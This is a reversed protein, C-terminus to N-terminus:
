GGNAQGDGEPDDQMQSFSVVKNRGQRKAEANAMDAARLLGDVDEGDEPFSAMGISVTGTIPMLKGEDEVAKRIREATIWSNEASTETLVIVFEDGAFWRAVLDTGRTQRILVRSLRRIWENGAEHSLLDNFQKLADGDALLISYRRNYRAARMHEHRLFHELARHNPLGSVPDTFAARQAEELLRGTEVMRRALMNIIRSSVV